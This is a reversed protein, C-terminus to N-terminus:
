DFWKMYWTISMCVMYAVFFCGLTGWFGAVFLLATFIGMSVTAMFMIAVVSLLTSAVHKM